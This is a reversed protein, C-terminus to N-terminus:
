ARAMHWGTITLRGSVVAASMAVSYTGPEPGGSLRVAATVTASIVTSGAVTLTPTVPGPVATVRAGELPRADALPVGPAVGAWTSASGSGAVQLAGFYLTLVSGAANVPAVSQRWAQDPDGALTLRGLPATTTVRAGVQAALSAPLSTTLQGSGAPPVTIASGGSGVSGLTAAVLYREPTLFLANLPYCTVLVLRPAATNYVPSGTPVVQHGTVTYRYTHCATVYDVTGGVRLHDIQSFWSVDHATLVTTGSTGPWASTPVHGVAVALQADGDGQVVPADLGISAAELLGHPGSPGVAPAHCAAPSVATANTRHAAADAANAQSRLAAGGRDSRLYFAGISAAIAVAVAISVITVAPWM